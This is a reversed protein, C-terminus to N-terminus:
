RRKNISKNDESEDIKKDIYIMLLLVGSIGLFVLGVQWASFVFFVLSLVICIVLLAVTYGKEIKGSTDRRKKNRDMMDKYETHSDMSKRFKEKM